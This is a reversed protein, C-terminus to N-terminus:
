PAKIPTLDSAADAAFVNTAAIGTAAARGIRHPQPRQEQGPVARRRGAGALNGRHRGGSVARRRLQVYDLRGRRVADQRHRCSSRGARMCPSCSAYWPRAPARWRLSRNDCLILALLNLWECVGHIYGFASLVMWPISSQTARSAAASVAGDISIGARLLVRHLRASQHFLEGDAGLVHRSTGYASMTGNIRDDRRRADIAFNSGELVLGYRIPRLVVNGM